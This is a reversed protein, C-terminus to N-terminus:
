TRNMQKSSTVRVSSSSWSHLQECLFSSNIISVIKQTFVCVCLLFKVLCPRWLRFWARCTVSCRYLICVLLDSWLVTNRCTLVVAAHESECTEVRGPLADPDRWRQQHTQQDRDGDGAHAERLLPACLLSLKGEAVFESSYQLTASCCSTHLHKSMNYYDREQFLPLPWNDKHHSKGEYFVEITGTLNVLTRAKGDSFVALFYYLSIEKFLDIRQM